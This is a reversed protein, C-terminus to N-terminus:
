PEISFGLISFHHDLAIAKYIKMRKMLAFSTADTLTLKQDDYKKIISMATQIDNLDIVKYTFLSVLGDMFAIASDRGIDYLLRRYTEGIILQTIIIPVNESIKKNIFSVIQFNRKDKKDYYTILSGTDILYAREYITQITTM